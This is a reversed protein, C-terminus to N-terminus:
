DQTLIGPWYVILTLVLAAFSVIAAQHNRFM